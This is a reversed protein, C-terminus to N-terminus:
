SSCLNITTDVGACIVTITVTATNSQEGFLNKFRYTFSDSTVKINFPTYNLTGDPLITLTGKTPPTVISVTTPDPASSGGSDNNLVNINTTSNCSVIVSDNVATPPTVCSTITYIVADACVGNTDCITWPIIDNVIPNPVLYEIIHDGNIDTTLTISSSVPDPPGIVAFSSWDVEAGPSVVLENEINISITNGSVTACSLSITQSPIFITKSTNSPHIIFTITGFTSRVGQSTRVSYQGTYTGPVVSLPATFKVNNGNQSYNFLQPLSVGLTTWNFVAGPCSTPNPVTFLSSSYTGDINYMNIVINEAQPICFPVLIEETKTCGSSDTAVVSVRTNPPLSSLNPRLGLKLQASNSSGSSSQLVFLQNDYEWDFTIDSNATGTVNFTYPATFTVPNLILSDCPDSITLPLTSTCGKSDIVNLSLVAANYCNSDTFTVLSNITRLSSTGSTPSFSVCPVNSVFQFTFPPVGAIINFSKPVTPM